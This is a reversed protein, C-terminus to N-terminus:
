PLKWGIKYKAYEAKPLLVYVPNKGPDMQSILWQLKTKEMTTCGATPSAGDRRWIHFFISSGAGPTVDPPANHAIFLKLSHAADDQKMQQKKEWDTSPEHDLIVNKNYQPSAPDEVWLDRSTVQRYPLGPNKKITTDYGWAGGIEFVGAPSRNDGEKKTRVGPPVPSMGKGWVLGSKGLRGKWPTSVPKWAGGSKQYLTLTVNSSDWGDSTGVLCQSSNAPLQFAALPLMALLSLTLVKFSMM